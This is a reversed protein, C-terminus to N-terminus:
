NQGPMKLPEGGAYNLTATKGNDMTLEYTYSRASELKLLERKGNRISNLHEQWNTEKVASPIKGSDVSPLAIETGDSLEVHQVKFEQNSDVDRCLHIEIVDLNLLRFKGDALAQTIKKEMNNLSTSFTLATKGGDAFTFRYAYQKEGQPGDFTKLLTYKKQAILQKIEEFHAKDIGGIIAVGPNTTKGDKTSLTLVPTPAQKKQSAAPKNDTKKAGAADSRLTPLVCMLMGAAILWFLNCRSLMPNTKGASVLMKMRRRWFASLQPNPGVDIPTAWPGYKNSM